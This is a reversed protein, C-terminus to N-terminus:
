DGRKAIAYIEYSLHSAIWGRLPVHVAKPLIAIHLLFFSLYPIAGLDNGYGLEQIEFGNDQLMRRLSRKRFPTVHTYDEYFQFFLRVFDPVRVAFTGSPKLVRRVERIVPIPSKLHELTHACYVYDFEGDKFPLPKGCELDFLVMEFGEGARSKITQEFIDLGVVSKGFYELYEGTGCGIDLARGHPRFRELMEVNMAEQFSEISKQFVARHLEALVGMMPNRPKQPEGSNSFYTKTIEFLSNGM